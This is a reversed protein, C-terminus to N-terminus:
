QKIIDFRVRRVHYSILM